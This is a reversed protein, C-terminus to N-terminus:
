PFLDFKLSLFVPDVYSSYSILCQTIHTWMRFANWHVINNSHFIKIFKRNYKSSHLLLFLLFWHQDQDDPKESVPEGPDIGM